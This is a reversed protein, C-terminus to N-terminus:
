IFRGPQVLVVALISKVKLVVAVLNSAAVGAHVLEVDLMTLAGPSLDGIIETMEAFVTPVNASVRATASM